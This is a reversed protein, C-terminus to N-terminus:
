SYQRKRDEKSNNIIDQFSPVVIEKEKGFMENIFNNTIANLMLKTAKISREFAHTQNNITIFTNCKNSDICVKKLQEFNVWEDQESAVVTVNNNVKSLDEISSQLDTYGNIIADKVFEKPLKTGKLDIEEMDSNDSEFYDKFTIRRLTDSVDVVPLLLAVHSYHGEQLGALQKLIVRGALSEGIVSVPASYNQRTYDCVINLTDLLDSMTYNNSAVNNCGNYNLNDFRIVRFGNCALYQSFLFYDRMTKGFSPPIIVIPPEVEGMEMHDIAM